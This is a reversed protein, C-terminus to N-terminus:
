CRATAVCVVAREPHIIAIYTFLACLANLLMCEFALSLEKRYIGMWGPSRPRATQQTESSTPHPKPRLVFSKGVLSALSNPETTGQSHNRQIELVAGISASVLEDDPGITRLKRYSRRTPLGSDTIHPQELVACEALRNGTASFLTRLGICEWQM